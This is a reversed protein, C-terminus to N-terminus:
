NLSEFKRMIDVLQVLNQIGLKEFIRNKYTSVTSAGIDLLNSIELNGMGNKMYVAIEFERKSLRTIPNSIVEYDVVNMEKIMEFTVTQKIIKMVAELFEEETIDNAVYADIKDLYMLQLESIKQKSNVLMVLKTNLQKVRIKSSILNLYDISTDKEVVLLDINITNLIELTTKESKSHLVKVNKFYEELLSQFGKYCLMSADVMLINITNAIQNFSQM